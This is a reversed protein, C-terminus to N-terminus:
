SPSPNGNSEPTLDRVYIGRGVVKTDMGAGSINKGIQDVILLQFQPLRIRPVSSRALELAAAEMAAINEGRASRAAM